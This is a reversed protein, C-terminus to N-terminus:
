LINSEEVVLGHNSHYGFEIYKENRHQVAEDLTVFCKRYLWGNQDRMGVTYKKKRNDKAITINAYGSTNKSNMSKNKCNQQNSVNKLNEIRNDSVTRNEHDIFDVDVDFHYKYILRHYLYDIGFFRVSIYNDKDLSESMFSGVKITNAKDFTKKLYKLKGSQDYVLYERLLSQSPLEKKM